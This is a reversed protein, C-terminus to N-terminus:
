TGVAVSQVVDGCAASESASHDLEDWRLVNESWAESDAFLARLLKNNIEHGSRIGHFAGSIPAGALYLDGVADLAKHRAFEDEFRLGGHNLIGEGGVVIANELSGGRAFGAAQMQNIQDLFGFTRARALERKFTGNVLALSLSQRSIIPNEFDIDIRLTFGNEPRLSATGHGDSVTVPKRVRIVRRPANQEECGADDILAVFPAASGDMIPIEPGDVEVVLNDIECGALAALLHEVTGVHSGGDGVLTTCLRTNVVRDWRAPILEGSGEDSRMFAIGFGPPAPHLTVSVKTGCHIGIGGFTVAAALTKQLFFRGDAADDGIETGRRGSHGTERVIEM